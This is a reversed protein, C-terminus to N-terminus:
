APDVGQTAFGKQPLPAARDSLRWDEQPASRRAAFAHGSRNAVDHQLIEACRWRLYLIPMLNPLDPLESRALHLINSGLEEGEALKDVELM